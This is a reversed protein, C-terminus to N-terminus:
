QSTLSSKSFLLNKAISVAKKPLEVFTNKFVEKFSVATESPIMKLGYQAMLSFNWATFLASIVLLTKMGVKREIQEFVLCLGPIFLITCSVFMRHGFSQAGNWEKTSAVFFLQLLFAIIFALALVGQNKSAKFSRFVFIIMGIFAVFIIPTWLFLGHNTSFLVNFLNQFVNWLSISTQYNSLASFYSGHQYKLVLMQPILFAILSILYVTNKLFLAFVSRFRKEKVFVYYNYLSYILPVAMFLGDQYRVMVMLASLAGFVIWNLFTAEKHKKFWYFVFLSVAFLSCAHSMSAEFFMYYFVNSSLWFAITSILAIKKSFFSACLSYAMLLGLMALMASGFNIMFVYPFSYGDATGSALAILHGTGFFPMWLLSTGIPYQSYYVGTSKDELISNVSFRQQFHEKENKLDIDKDIFASRVYSYYGAGDNGHIWPVLFIPTLIVFLLILVLNGKIM